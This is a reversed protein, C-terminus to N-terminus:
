SSLFLIFGYQLLLERVEQAEERLKEALDDDGLVLDGGSAVGCCEEPGATLQPSKRVKCNLKQRCGGAGEDDGVGTARLHKLYAKAALM